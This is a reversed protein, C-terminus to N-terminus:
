LRRLSTLTGYQSAIRDVAQKLPEIVVKMHYGNAHIMREADLMMGVHGKWFVLDGRRLNNLREDPLPTGVAAEIMDSDRPCAIGAAQLSIQVLGSCDLGEHSKGGWLYPVGVYNETVAAPDTVMPGRTSLHATHVYGGTELRAYRDVTELVTLRAHLYLAHLPPTKLNAEPYVFTKPASVAHTSRHGTPGLATEEVYGVYGDIELQVWAWGDRREYVHVVEGFLAETVQPAAADGRKRLPAIPATVAMPVGATFRPVDVVGRLSEAALDDRVVNLRPDLTM